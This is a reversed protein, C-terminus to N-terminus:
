GRSPYVRGNENSARKGVSMATMCAKSKRASVLSWSYEPELMMTRSIGGAGATGNRSSSGKKAIM